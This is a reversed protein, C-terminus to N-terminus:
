PSPSGPAPGGLGGDRGGLLGALARGLLHPDHALGSPGALQAPVVGPVGEAGSMREPDYLVVDPVLGHRHLAEVHAAVDYGATEAVQPNLNCVYVFQGEARTIAERIGRVSAAALVSTYLSGPGLVIQEAGLIALEAEPCAVADPPDVEVLDLDDCANVCVQGDVTGGGIRRARLMVPENTAPLVRGRAELLRGIEDLSEVLDGTAHKMAVLMLNGVAHGKLEGADFRFEMAKALLSGPDALAVLCKRLDGPALSEGAERLRGTSGGDDAVSVVATIEDTYTRAARLTAALGHGGGIAVVRPGPERGVLHLHPHTDSEQVM